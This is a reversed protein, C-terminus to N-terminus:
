AINNKVADSKVKVMLYMWVQADNRSQNMRKMREPSTEGSKELLMQFEASRHTEDKLTMDNQSKMSNM